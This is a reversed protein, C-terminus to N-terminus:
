HMKRVNDQESYEVPPLKIKYDNSLAEAMAVFYKELTEVEKGHYKNALSIELRKVGLEAFWRLISVRVDEKSRLFIKREWASKIMKAWQVAVLSHTYSYLSAIGSHHRCCSLPEDLFFMDGKSLLQFWTSMDVLNFFGREDDHWCLDSNRLFKKRILVTTPEGIFNMFTKFLFNGVAEGAMKGSNKFPVPAEGTIQGETNIYHRKSTVLSVDPNNRYVEIMKEIKTPYFLDDDMLWNVYEAAPNNYDRAFNWNDHANFNKHRFYKIPADELYSQILKETDDNTSNDSIVIEINRYTQHLASDLAEKFWKPRNFTPIIISVLPFLDASYERLFNNRSSEDFTLTGTDFSIWDGGIFVKYGARCFEVCQAQGGFYNDKFLDDRWPLDYQTAFFFGDVVQAECIYNKAARKISYLSIGHTSLEIAGSTGVVGIKKDGDFIKLLEFLFNKNTIVAREDLYIKYKADSSQMAANYASYKSGGRIVKVESFFKKPVFVQGLSKLLETSAAEATAHIIFEIKQENM